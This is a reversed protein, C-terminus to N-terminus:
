LMVNVYGQVKGGFVYITQFEMDICMQHDFLLRPGGMSYTDETIVIWKSQDIDYM